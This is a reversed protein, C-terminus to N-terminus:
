HPCGRLPPSVIVCLAFCGLVVLPVLWRAAEIRGFLYALGITSWALVPFALPMSILTLGGLALALWPGIDIRGGPTMCLTRAYAECVAAFTVGMVGLSWLVTPRSRRQLLAIAAGAAVATCPLELLSAIAYEYRGAGLAVVDAAAALTALGLVLLATRDRSWTM